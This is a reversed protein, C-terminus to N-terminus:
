TEGNIIGRFPLDFYSFFIVGSYQELNLDIFLSIISLGCYSYHTQSLISSQRDFCQLNATTCLSFSNIHQFEHMVADCLFFCVFLFTTCDLIM